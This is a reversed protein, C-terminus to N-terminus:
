GLRPAMAIGSHNRERVPLEYLGTHRHAIGCWISTPCDANTVLEELEDQFPMNSGTRQLQREYRTLEDTAAQADRKKKRETEQLSALMERGHDTHSRKSRGYVLLYHAARQWQRQMRQHVRLLQLKTVAPPAVYPVSFHMGSDPCGVVGDSDENCEHALGHFKRKVDFPIM